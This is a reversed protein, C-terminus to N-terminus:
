EDATGQRWMEMKKDFTVVRMGHTVPTYCTKAEKGNVTALCAGGLLTAQAPKPADHLRAWRTEGSM